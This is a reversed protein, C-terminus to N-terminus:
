KARQRNALPAPDASRLLNRAARGSERESSWNGNM